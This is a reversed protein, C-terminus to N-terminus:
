DQKEAFCFSNKGTNKVRYMAKDAKKILDENDAGHDPYMAIGISASVTAQKGDITVPRSVSHIIKEAIKEMYLLAKEKIKLGTIIILFEDGGVRAVTDTERVCRLMRNATQALLYDGANHGLSDNVAKFGDLDVFMVAAMERNRHAMSLAMSLRDQALRMTPLDTLSDHDALHKIKEEAQKRETIDQHTGFMLLPKGDSTWSTVKGRDLVWIWNGSKHLMRTEIEYYPLEKKFHKELLNGSLKLDDPHSFKEWTAISIPSIEELTYGIIEAWRENFVTKGTQINWEWTGTNTGEIINALRHRESALLNESKKRETIDTEIGDYIIVGGSLRRPISRLHSWRLEGNTAHYAIDINLETMDRVSHAEAEMVRNRDEHSMQSYLLSPDSIVAESTLGHLHRIGDSIYGFRSTGDNEIIVQYLFSDPINNLLIKLRQENERLREELLRRETVDRAVAYIINGQPRSRWEIWRYSGDNCIYRNEFSLVEKQDRLNSIAALTAEMDDPHVFDLFLRGNLDDASYGLIKEWEANVRLFHGDTDAICLLDLSSTFYRELEESKLRLAERAIKVEERAKKLVTVNHNADIM